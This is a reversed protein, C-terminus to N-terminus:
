VQGIIYTLQIHYKINIKSYNGDNSNRNGYLLDIRQNDLNKVVENVLDASTFFDGSNMFNIYDGKSVKIGKNMADFIGGDKESIWYDIKKDYKKIVDATGDNSAGDIVILEINDYTQSLVSLITEEINEIDNYVVTIISILPKKIM